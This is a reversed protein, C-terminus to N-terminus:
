YILVNAAIDGYLSIDDFCVIETKAIIIADKGQLIHYLTPSTGLPLCRYGSEWRYATWLANTGPSNCTNEHRLHSNKTPAL